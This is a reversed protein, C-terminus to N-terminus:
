HERAAPQRGGDAESEPPGVWLARTSGEVLSVVEGAGVARSLEGSLKNLEIPVSRYVADLQEPIAREVEFAVLAEGDPGTTIVASGNLLVGAHAIDEGSFFGVSFSGAALDLRLSGFEAMDRVMFHDMEYRRLQSVSIGVGIADPSGVAGEPRIAAVELHVPVESLGFQALLKAIESDGDSEYQLLLDLLSEDSLVAAAALQAPNLGRPSSNLHRRFLAEIM